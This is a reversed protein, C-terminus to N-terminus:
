AGAIVEWPVVYVHRADEGWQELLTGRWAPSEPAYESGMLTRLLLDLAGQAQVASDQRLTQLLEGRRVADVAEGLGDISAIPVLPLSNRKLTDIVGLAMEDNQAIIGHIELNRDLLGQVVEMASARSWGAPISRVEKIGPYGALAKDIGADRHRAAGQEPPGRLVVVNGTGGMKKAVSTATLFGAQIDDPGIFADVNETEIQACSAVIPIAPKELIEALRTGAHVDNGVVLVADYTNTAITEFNTHQVSHSGTCNYVRLEVRGDVVAPHRRLDAVWMRIFAPAINYVSVAVRIPKGAEAARAFAMGAVASFLFVGVCAFRIKRM